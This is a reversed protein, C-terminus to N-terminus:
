LGNYFGEFLASIVSTGVPHIILNLTNKVKTLCGLWPKGVYLKSDSKNFCGVPLELLESHEVLVSGM